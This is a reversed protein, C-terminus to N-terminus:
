GRHMPWCPVSTPVPGVVGAQAGGQLRGRVWRVKITSELLDFVPQAFIQWTTMRCAHRLMAESMVSPM